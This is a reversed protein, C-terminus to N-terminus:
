AAMPVDAIMSEVIEHADPVATEPLQAQQVQAAAEEQTHQWAV